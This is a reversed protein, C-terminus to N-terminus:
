RVARAQSFWALAAILPGYYRCHQMGANDCVLEWSQLASSRRRSSYTLGILRPRPAVYVVLAKDEKTRQVPAEMVVM